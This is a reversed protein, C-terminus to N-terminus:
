FDRVKLFILVENQSLISRVKRFYFPKEVSKPKGTTLHGRLKTM